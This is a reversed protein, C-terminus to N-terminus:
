LQAAGGSGAHQGDVAAHHPVEAPLPAIDTRKEVGGNTTIPARSSGLRRSSASSNENTSLSGSNTSTPDASASLYAQLAKWAVLIVKALSIALSNRVQPISARSTISTKQWSSLSLM